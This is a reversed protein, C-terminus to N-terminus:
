IEGPFQRRRGPFVARAMAKIAEQSRPPFLLASWYFLPWLSRRNGGWLEPLFRKSFARDTKWGYYYADRATLWSKTRMTELIIGRIDPPAGKLQKRICRV